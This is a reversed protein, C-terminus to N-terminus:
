VMDMSQKSQRRDDREGSGYVNELCIGGSPHAFLSYPEAPLFTITCETHTRGVDGSDCFVDIILFLMMAFHGELLFVDGQQLLVANLVIRYKDEALTADKASSDPNNTEWRKRPPSPQQAGKASNTQKHLPQNAVRIAQLPAGSQGECFVQCIGGAPPSYDRVK